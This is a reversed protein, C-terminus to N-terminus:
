YIGFIQEINIRRARNINDKGYGNVLFSDLNSSDAALSDDTFDLIFRLKYSVHLSDTLDWYAFNDYVKLSETLVVYDRNSTSDPHVLMSDLHNLKAVRIRIAPLKGSNYSGSDAAVKESYRATASIVTDFRIGYYMKGDIIGDGLLVDFTDAITHANKQLTTDDIAANITKVRPETVQRKFQSYSVTGIYGLLILIIFLKKM